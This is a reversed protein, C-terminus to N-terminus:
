RPWRKWCASAARRRTRPAVQQRDQRDAARQRREAQHQLGDGGDLVLGRRGGGGARQRGEVGPDLGDLHVPQCGVGRRCHRPHRLGDADARGGDGVAGADAQGAALARAAGRDPQRQCDGRGGRHHREHGRDAHEPQEQHHQLRRSLHRHDAASHRGQQDPGCLQRLCEAAHDRRRSHRERRARDRRLRGPVSRSERARHAQRGELGRDAAGTGEASRASRPWM